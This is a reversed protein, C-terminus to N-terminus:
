RQLPSAEFRINYEYHTFTFGPYSFQYDYDLILPYSQNNIIVRRNSAMIFAYGGNEDSTDSPLPYVSVSYEKGDRGLRLYHRSSGSGNIFDGIAVVSALPFEYCISNSDNLCHWNSEHIPPIELTLQARCSAALIPMTALAFFGSRFPFLLTM